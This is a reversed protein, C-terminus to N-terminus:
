RFDPLRGDGVAAFEGVAVGDFGATLHLHGLLLDDPHDTPGTEFGHFSVRVIVADRCHLNTRGNPTSRFTHTTLPLQSLFMVM